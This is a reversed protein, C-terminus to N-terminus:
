TSLIIEVLLTAFTFFFFILSIITLIGIFKYHKQLFLFSESLKEGDDEKLAKTLESSFRFLFYVPIFYITIIIIMIGAYTWSFVGPIYLSDHAAATYSNIGTILIGTLIILLASLGLFVFGGVSLFTAWLSISKLSSRIKDTIPFVNTLDSFNINASM